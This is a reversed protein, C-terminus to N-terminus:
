LLNGFKVGLYVSRPYAPGYIYAPDRDIGRDFDRQWSNFINKV